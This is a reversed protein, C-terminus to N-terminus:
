FTLKMALCLLAIMLNQKTWGILSIQFTICKQLWEERPVINKLELVELSNIEEEPPTAYFDVKVREKHAKNYGKYFGKKNYTNNM